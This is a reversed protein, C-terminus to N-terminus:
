YGVQLGVFATSARRLAGFSSVARGNFLDAGCTLKVTDSIAYFLRPRVLSEQREPVYVLSLEGRFIDDTSHWSIRSAIGVTDELSQQSFISNFIFIERDEVPVESAVRYEFVHKFFAQLNLNVGPLVDVDGGGVIYFYPRRLQRFRRDALRPYVYSAEVRANLSGLAGAGDLGVMDIPVPRAGLLTPKETWLLQNRDLGHFMAVSWDLRGGSFDIKSGINEARWIDLNLNTRRFPAPLIVPYVNARYEPAWIFNWEGTKAIPLALRVMFSGQREEDDDTFLLTRNTSSLVDTPNIKDARGWVVIQRGITLSFDSQKVVGWAERLDGATVASKDAYVGGQLWAEAYTSFTNGPSFAGRLWLGSVAVAGGNVDSRDNTFVTTRWSYDMASAGFRPAIIIAMVVCVFRALSAM